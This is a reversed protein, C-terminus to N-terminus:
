ILKTFFNMLTEAIPRVNNWFTTMVSWQAEMAALGGGASVLPITQRRVVAAFKVVTSAAQKAFTLFRGRAESRTPEDVRDDELKQADTEHEEATQQLQEFIERLQDTTMSKHDHLVINLRAVPDAIQNPTVRNEIPIREATGEINLVEPYFSEILNFHSRRFGNAVLGDEPSLRGERQANNIASVLARAILHLLRANLKESELLEIYKDCRRVGGSGFQNKRALIRLEDVAWRLEELMSQRKAEDIKSDSLDSIATTDFKGNEFSFNAYSVSSFESNQVLEHWEQVVEADKATDTDQTDNGRRREKLWKQLAQVRKKHNVIKSISLIEDNFQCAPINRFWFYELTDLDAVPDLNSVESEYVTLRKLSKLKSVSAIDSIRTYDLDLQELWDLRVINKPIKTLEAFRLDGSRVEGNYEVQAPRGGLNLYKWEESIALDVYKEALAFAASENQDMCAGGWDIVAVIHRTRMERDLSLNGRDSCDTLPM